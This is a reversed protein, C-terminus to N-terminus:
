LGTTRSGQGESQALLPTGIPRRAQVAAAVALVLEEGRPPGVVQLGVPLGEDDLGAPVCAVPLGTMSLVFTPALWDVYTAMPKGAVTQPYNEEVPFPSVPMCPTLLVDVRTFLERMLHWLRGRVLEAEAFTRMDTSLGARVNNAVNPGFELARDLRTLHQAAFWYGRLALFAPRVFALDLAIEEVHDAADRMAFAGERCVREVVADVGIGAIDATYALRLARPPGARVAGVFDRDANPQALPAFPTNGAMVQLMLAVDEATRAMPGTVQLTDWVYDSPHTPVLGPSPRLGVVGCFSAPIRLSGGLDTGEALAIMGSALAAAGGGTSGGASREPNWPNRTRGFVENFTNGGAAFEPTNTKGIIIAGAARLRTVVIADEDPVHDRYLPSGFTTRMGAVQTVDKIGVPVGGLAGLDEGRMQRQELERATARASDAALTCIANLPPNCRDIRALTADLLEVPSLERRRVMDRLVTASRLTLEESM